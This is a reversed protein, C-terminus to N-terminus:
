GHSLAKARLEARALAAGKHIIPPRAKVGAAKAKDPFACADCLGARTDRDTRGCTNCKM